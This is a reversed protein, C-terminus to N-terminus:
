PEAELMQSREIRMAKNLLLRIAEAMHPLGNENRLQVVAESVSPDTQHAM